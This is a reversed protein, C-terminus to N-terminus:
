QGRRNEGEPNHECEVKGEGERMRGKEDWPKGVVIDMMGPIHKMDDVVRKISRTQHVGDGAVILSAGSANNVGTWVEHEYRDDIKERSEIVHQERIM